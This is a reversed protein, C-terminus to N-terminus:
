MHKSWVSRVLQTVCTVQHREAKIPRKSRQADREVFPHVPSAQQVEARKAEREPKKRGEM